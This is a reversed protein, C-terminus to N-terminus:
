ENSPSVFPMAYVNVTWAFLEAPVPGAEAGEAATVGMAVWARASMRAATLPNGALAM